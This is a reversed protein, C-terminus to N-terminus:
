PQSQLVLVADRGSPSAFSHSGTNAFPAGSVLTLNGTAPDFWRANINPGALKTLDIILTQAVPTFAVVASGDNMRAAVARNSGSGPASTLVSGDSDPVLSEWAIGTVAFLEPLHGVTTAGTSDLATQWGAGFYWVPFNGMLQGTAGSLVAQYAQMRVGAADVDHNEYGAEILFFPMPAAYQGRAETVVTGADTYITNLTLWPDSTTNLFELADTGRGGHFTQLWKGATDVDRIGNAVARALTKDPPDYDGGQVWIINDYAAFQTAVYQGYARLKTAGNASMESYWGEDGGQYGLYAPALLVLMGKEKAKAVVYQAHAFYADNHTTFDNVNSFPAQGEANKPANDAFHHEILNTMVTNFGQQHRKELYLDADAKSLQAILSWPSDGQILFPQGQADVLYRKNASVRLPFSGAGAISVIISSQATGGAGTCSLSFSTTTTLAGTSQSGATAKSGGWGGSAACSTANGSTWTLTSSGGSAVSVPSASLTITPAPAAASISVSTSAQATGGAGTCSLTFSAAASLAGTSASGSVAKSGSWGGSATCSTANTSSWTLTSSAGSAVTTPAASLTVVPATSGTIAVATSASATGGAGTCSLTYSANANLAGTSETGSVAKAGSWGGSATCATANTSSWTLTGSGGASVTAPSASLSVTPVPQGGGGAAPADAGGGGCATLVSVLVLVPFRMSKMAAIM